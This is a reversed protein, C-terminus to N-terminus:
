GMRDLADRRDELPVADYKMTTEPRKHRLQAQAAALGRERVMYTGLSHRIAYWSMRRNETPIGAEACLRRLLRRLSQSTYPNGERTLWIHDRGDYSDYLEREDLWADLSQATRGTLAVHWNEENKASEAVPIRLLKNEVDVWGTRAHEVEHPRLGADLSTWVLSPVKWGQVTAWDDPHVDAPRKGLMRAVYGRWRDREGPTLDNYGPIAGYDLAAERISQREDLTLYDPPRISNSPTFSRTPEWSDYGRETELWRFLRLLAKREQDGHTGSAGAYALHDLYDDAHDHTIELTFGGEVEWVFRFFKSTRYATNQVTKPAYGEVAAPDKGEVLLWAIFAERFDRYAALEDPHLQEADPGPVIAYPSLDPDRGGTRDSASRNGRTSHAADNPSEPDGPGTM